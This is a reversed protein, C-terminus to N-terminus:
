CGHVMSWDCQVHHRRSAPEKMAGWKSRRLRSSTFPPVSMPHATSPVAPPVRSRSRSSEPAPVVTVRYGGDPALTASVSPQIEDVSAEGPLALAMSSWLWWMM